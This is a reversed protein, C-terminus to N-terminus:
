DSLLLSPYHVSPVDPANGVCNGGAGRGGVLGVQQQRHQETCLRCFHVVTFSVALYLFVIMFECFRLFNYTYLLEGSV